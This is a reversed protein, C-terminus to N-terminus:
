EKSVRTWTQGGDTTAFLKVPPATRVTAKQADTAHIGALDVPAPPPLKTWHMGGDTTLLVTGARGVVWAVTGNPASGGLLETTVSSDQAIWTVGRDVSREITGQPGVRWLVMGEPSAIFRGDLSDGSGFRGEDRLGSVTGGLAGRATRPPAAPAPTAAAAKEKKASPASNMPSPGAAKPTSYQYQNQVQNQAQIETNAAVETSSQAPAPAPARATQKLDAGAGADAAPKASARLSDQERAKYASVDDRDKKVSPAPRGAVGAPATLATSAEGPKPATPMRMPQSDYLKDNAPPPPEPSVAEQRKAKEYARSAPAAAAPVDAPLKQATEVTDGSKAPLLGPARNEHVAVWVLLGAAIAGAPALWRWHPARIPRVKSKVQAATPQAVKATALDSTLIERTAGTSSMAALEEDGSTVLIEDTAELHALIEQCRGCGVVHEKWSHLEEASLSGEHYAALLEAPPCQLAEADARLGKSVFGQLAAEFKKDEQAAM